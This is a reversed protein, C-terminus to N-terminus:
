RQIRKERRHAKKEEVKFVGRNEWVYDCFQDWNLRVQQNVDTKMGDCECRSFLPTVVVEWECKSGYWYFLDKRLQEFFLEKDEKNKKYNKRCDEFFGVLGLDCRQCILLHMVEQLFGLVILVKLSCQESSNQALLHRLKKFYYPM